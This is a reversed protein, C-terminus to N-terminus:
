RGARTSRHGRQGELASYVLVGLGAILALAGTILLLEAM